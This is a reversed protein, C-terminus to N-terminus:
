KFTDETGATVSFFFAQGVSTNKEKVSLATIRTDFTNIVSQSQNCFSTGSERLWDCVERPPCETM